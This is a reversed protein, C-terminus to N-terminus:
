PLVGYAQKLRSTARGAALQARADALEAERLEREARLRTTLDFEGAAFGRAFLRQTDSALETRRRVLPLAANAIDVEHTASAVEAEINTAIRSHLAQAEMLEANAATVRPRNRNESGLPVRVRFTVIQEWPRGTEVRERLTGVGIEPADRTDGAVQRFRARAAEIVQAAALLAPHTHVPLKAPAPDEASDPVRLLGTLALFARASRFARGEAEALTLRQLHTEGEARNADVRALEGAASRRKVDAELEVLSALAARALAVEAADARAQWYADRVEGALKLRAADANAEYSVREAEVMAQALASQGPLWLPVAIEGAFKRFGQNRNLADTWHEGGLAPPGPLLAAAAARRAAFEEMRAEKAIAQPARAWAADLAERLGRQVGQAHTPMATCALVLTCFAARWPAAFRIDM